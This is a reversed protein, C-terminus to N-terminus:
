PIRELIIKTNTSESGQMEETVSYMYATFGLSDTFVTLKKTINTLLNKELSVVQVELKNVHKRTYTTLSTVPYKFEPKRKFENVVVTEGRNEGDEVLLKELTYAGKYSPKNIEFHEFFSIQLHLSDTILQTEEKGDVVLTKQFNYVPKGKILSDRLATISYYGADANM